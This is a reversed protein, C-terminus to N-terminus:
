VLRIGQSGSRRQEAMATRARGLLGPGDAPVRGLAIGINSSSRLTDVGLKFEPTLVGLVRQGAREANSPRAMGELMVAFEDVGVRALAAPPPFAECLREAVAFLLEEGAGPGFRRDVGAFDTIGVVLVGVYRKERQARFLAEAVREELLSATALGTLPDRLLRGGAHRVRDIAFLLTESLREAGAGDKSLFDQAGQQVAAQGLGHEQLGTMVVVPVDPSRHRVARYTQLGESDPLTLDLLVVDPTRRALWALGDALTGVVTVEFSAASSHALLTEVLAADTRSDEVLLVRVARQSGTSGVAM